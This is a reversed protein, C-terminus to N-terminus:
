ILPEVTYPTEGNAHSAFQPKFISQFLYLFNLVNYECNVNNMEGEKNEEEEKKKKLSDILPIISTCTFLLDVWVFLAHTLKM